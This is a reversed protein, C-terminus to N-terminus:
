EAGIEQVRLELLEDVRELGLGLTKAADRRDNSEAGLRLTWEADNGWMAAFNARGHKRGREVFFCTRREHEPNLRVRRAYGCRGPHPVREDQNLPIVRRHM